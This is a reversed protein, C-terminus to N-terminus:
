YLFVRVTANTHAGTASRVYLDFTVTQSANALNVITDTDVCAYAAEATGTQDTSVDVILLGAFAYEPDIGTLTIHNVTTGDQVCGTIDFGYGVVPYSFAQNPAVVIAM